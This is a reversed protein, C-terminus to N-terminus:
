RTLVKIKVHAEPSKVDVNVLDLSGYDKVMLLASEAIKLYGFIKGGCWRFLSIFDSFGEVVEHLCRMPLIIPLVFCKIRMTILVFRAQRTSM